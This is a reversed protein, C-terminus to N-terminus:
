SCGYRPTVPRTPDERHCIDQLFRSLKPGQDGDWQDSVENGICWMVVSPNNRYHRVVNVLDKEAWGDFITHYGNTCKASKWEDFTEIMLMMGMEDCARVLEPAPMNHSTRIANCGMEKLLYIQRRIAADNVAAGLPGLDHHNCVGKFVTRKGNLYFGKDPIVELSRIGFSITSEDKLVNGEYVRSVATYLYPTDPTWLVPKEVVLEQTFIQDDFSTLNMKGESLVEGSQNKIETIISYNEPKRNEPIALPTILKVKALEEKVVPTTLQQEWLPMYTDGTM